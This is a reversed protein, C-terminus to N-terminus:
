STPLISPFDIKTDSIIRLDNIGIFIINKKKLETIEHPTMIFGEFPFNSQQPLSAVLYCLQSGSVIGKSKFYDMTAFLQKKAKNLNKVANEYKSYKLELFLVWGQTVTPFCVCECQTQSKGEADLFSYKDFISNEFSVKSPNSIHFSDIDIPKTTFLKVSRASATQKTYDVIYLDSTYSSVVHYPYAALLKTKM